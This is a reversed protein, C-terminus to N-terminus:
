NYIYFKDGLLDYYIYFSELIDNGDDIVFNLYYNNGVQRTISGLGKYQMSNVGSTVVVDLYVLKSENNLNKLLSKQEETLYNDISSRSKANFSDELVISHNKFEIIGYKNRMPKGKRLLNKSM